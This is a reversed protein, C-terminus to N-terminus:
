TGYVLLYEKFGNRLLFSNGSRFGPSLELIDTEQYRPCQRMIDRDFRYSITQTDLIRYEGPSEPILPQTSIMLFVVTGRHCFRSLYGMLASCEKRGLYNFLDWAFVLDFRTGAKYPLLYRFVHLLSVSDDPSLYDFASLTAFLSEFHIKKSFQSFFDLNAPNARGLDLVSYSQGERLRGALTNLALSHHQSEVITRRVEAAPAPKRKGLPPFWKM